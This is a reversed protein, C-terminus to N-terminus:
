RNNLTWLVELERGDQEINGEKILLEGSFYKLTDIGLSLTLQPYCQLYHNALDQLMQLGIASEFSSSFSVQISQQNAISVLRDIKKKNGVITPKIVFAKIAQHHQYIFDPQQLTEDLAIPLEYREALQLNVQHDATPEEIYDLQQINISNFFQAAQQESWAQNADCRIKLQPNLQCLQQFNAIDVEVPERAVKLKIKNPRNLRLYLEIIQERNGQLLAINDMTLLQKSTAQLRKYRLSGLAFQISPHCSKHTLLHSISRTSFRMLETKVQVLTEHSFGPLPAVEIFQNVANNDTLRLILGERHTLLQQKFQIPKSFPLQYAFLTAKIITPLEKQNNM